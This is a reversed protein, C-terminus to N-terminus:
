WSVAFGRFELEPSLYFVGQERGGWDWDCLFVVKLSDSTKRIEQFSVNRLKTRNTKGSGEKPQEEAILSRSWRIKGSSDKLSLIAGQDSDEFLLLTTGDGINLSL